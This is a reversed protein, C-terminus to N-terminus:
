ISITKGTAFGIPSVMDIKVLEITIYKVILLYAICYSFLGDIYLNPHRPKLVRSTSLTIIM